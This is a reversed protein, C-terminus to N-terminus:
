TMDEAGPGPQVIKEVEIRVKRLDIDLNKLVNAAVGSGEKVLGLLIHETGLYEHGFRQAEQNALQLVKRARDTFREYMAAVGLSRFADVSNLTGPCGGGRLSLGRTGRADDGALGRVVEAVAAADVGGQLSRTQEQWERVMQERRKKYLDVKDRLQAARAFDQATVAEEKERNLFTINEELAALVPALAAAQKHSADHRHTGLI